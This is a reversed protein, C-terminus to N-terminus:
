NVASVFICKAKQRLFFGIAPAIFVDTAVRLYLDPYPCIDCSRTRKSWTSLWLFTSWVFLFVLFSAFRRSSSDKLRSGSRWRKLHTSLLLKRWVLLCDQWRWCRFFFLESMFLLLLLLWTPLSIPWLCCSLQALTPAGFLHWQFPGFTAKCSM